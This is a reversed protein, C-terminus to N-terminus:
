VAVDLNGPTLSVNGKHDPIIDVGLAPIIDVGLVYHEREFL